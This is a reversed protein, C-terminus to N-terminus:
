YGYALDFAHEIWEIQPTESDAWDILLASFAASVDGGRKALYEQATKSIKRQKSYPISERPSVVDGRHRTKVEVFHVTASPEHEVILDIEGVRSRYNRVLIKFGRSQLYRAALDEGDAGFRKRAADNSTEHSVGRSFAQKKLPRGIAMGGKDSSNHGTTTMITIFLPEDPIVDAVGVVLGLLDRQGVKLGDAGEHLTGDM